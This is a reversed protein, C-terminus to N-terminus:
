LYLDEATLCPSFGNTDEFGNASVFGTRGIAIGPIEAVQAAEKKMESYLLKGKLYKVEIVDYHSAYALAVDFEGNKKKVPDDYYLSGINRVGPFKRAKVQISFYERCIEEFRHSIFTVLTPEIYEEFFVEPGLMQLASRNRYLYTYYFRLLNDNISYKTKKEDDPRNIPINKSIIDMDTLTKLQRNLNGTKEMRLAKELESYRMKGNKLAAFIREANLRNTYDSILLNEAYVSVASLPNLITKLINERLSCEPDIQENVYPSGGFVSYFAAKEYPSKQPYFAQAELYNFEPLKIVAQFRGYLSNQEELLERMMGIQSGSLILNLNHLRTDILNQFVSDVLHSDNMAKLYPYEDIVIILQDQLQNLFAFLERFTPFSVAGPLVGARVLEATIGELNINLSDKVCEYYVYRKKQRKLFETILATKGVKRKGYIMVAADAPELTQLLLALEKERGTFMSEEM